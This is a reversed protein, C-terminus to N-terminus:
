QNEYYDLENRRTVTKCNSQAIHVLTDGLEEFRELSFVNTENGAMDLWQQEAEKKMEEQKAYKESNTDYNRSLKDSPLAITYIEVNMNTRLEEALIKVRQVARQRRDERGYHIQGDTMVILVNDSEEREGQNRQFYIDRVDQLAKDTGTICKGEGTVMKAFNRRTFAKNRGQSLTQINHTEQGFTLGGIKTQTPSISFKNILDRMFDKITTKNAKSISCSIDIAVVLDLGCFKLVGPDEGFVGAPFVPLNNPDCQEYVPCWVMDECKKYEKICLNVTCPYERSAMGKQALAIFDNGVALGRPCKRKVYRSNVCEYYELPLKQLERLGLYRKNDQNCRSTRSLIKNRKRSLAASIFILQIIMYFILM